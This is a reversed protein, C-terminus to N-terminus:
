PNGPVRGQKFFSLASPSWTEGCNKGKEFEATHLAALKGKVVYPSGCDGKMTEVEHVCSQDKMIMSVIGSGFRKTLGNYLNVEFEDGAVMIHLHKVGVSKVGTPVQKIYGLEDQGPIQKWTTFDAEICIANTKIYKPKEKLFHHEIIYYGCVVVGRGIYSKDERELTFVSESIVDPFTKIRAAGELREVKKKLPIEKEDQEDARLHMARHSDVRCLEIMEDCRRCHKMHTNQVHSDLTIQSRCVMTCNSVQCKFKLCEEKCKTAESQTPHKLGCKDCTFSVKPRKQEVIEVVQAEKKPEHPVEAKPVPEAEVKKPVDPLKKAEKKPTPPVEPLVKRQVHKEHKPPVPLVSQVGLSEKSPMVAKAVVAVASEMEDGFHDVGYDYEDEQEMDGWSKKSSRGRNANRDREIIERKDDHQEDREEQAATKQSPDDYIQFERVGGDKFM